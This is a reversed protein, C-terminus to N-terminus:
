QVLGVLAINYFGAAKVLDLIEFVRKYSLREDAKLFVVLNKDYRQLEEGISSDAIAKENIFLQTQSIVITLLNKKDGTPVSKVYRIVPVKVDVDSHMSPSVAMFIVLLVLMVDVLPTVNIEALKNRKGGKNSIM